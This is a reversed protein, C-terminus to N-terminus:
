GVVLHCEVFVAVFFVSSVLFYWLVDHMTLTCVVLLVRKSKSLCVYHQNVIYINNTIHVVSLLM